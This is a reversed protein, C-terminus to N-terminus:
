NIFLQLDKLNKIHKNINRRINVCEEDNFIIGNRTRFTNTESELVAHAFQNRVTIIQKTYDSLIDKIESSDINRLISRVRHDAGIYNLLDSVDECKTIREAFEVNTKIFKAKIIEIIEKSNGKSIIKSLIDEIEVDLSSTENMIMGRMAIINQFKKITQNIVELIENELEKYDGGTLQFFTIRNNSFLKIDKVSNNASYFFVETFNHQSDRIYNIVQSGFTGDNLSYDTVILDFEKNQTFIEVFENFDEAEIVNCDFYQNLLFDKTEDIIKKFPREKIRDDVWLINYNLKM